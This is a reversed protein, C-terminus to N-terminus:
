KGSKRRLLKHYSIGFRHAEDRAHMLIKLGENRKDLKITESFKPSYVEENEKALSVCELDLNLEELAKIAMGLQGAGGDILVLDPMQKSSKGQEEEEKAIEEGLGRYRRFVVEHIMGFDDQSRGGDGAERIKFKRYGSKDPKGNVFRVMSGVSNEGFLTSIDFCEIVMPIERLQLAKRLEVLGPVARGFLESEVNKKLLALLGRKEGKIPVLIEVRRGKQRGLYEEFSDAGEIKRQVYIASPINGEEYYGSIFEELEEGEGAEFSFKERDRIIGGIVKFLQLNVKGKEAFYYIYDEDGAGEREVKQRETLSELVRISDRLRLAREFNNKASESKMEHRMRELVREFELGKGSLVSEVERIRGMYEKESIKGECPATCNGLHYQLCVLKPLVRCIRIGFAKRLTDVVLIRASGRAFPGYWKGKHDQTKLRPDQRYRDQQDQTRLGSDQARKGSKRALLLRPFKEDTVVVYTFRESDKLDVNYKPYYKKVLNNELLLAEAENDTIITELGAIEEVLRATKGEQERAFYSSVRKKLDKAKGVYIVTGNKDKFLYCGPSSPVRLKSIDLM